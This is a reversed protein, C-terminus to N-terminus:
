FLTYIFPAIASGQTVVILGGFLVLLVIIPLLWVMKHTLMFTGLTRVSELRDVWAGAPDGRLSQLRTFDNLCSLCETLHEQMWRPPPVAGAGLRDLSGAVDCSRQGSLSDDPVRRGTVDKSM